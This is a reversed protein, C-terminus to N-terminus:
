KTIKKLQDFCQSHITLGQLYQDLTMGYLQYVSSEYKQKTSNNKPHLSKKNKSNKSTM